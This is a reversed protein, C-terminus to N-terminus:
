LSREVNWKINIAAAAIDTERYPERLCTHEPDRLLLSSTKRMCHSFPGYLDLPENRCEGFFIKFGNKMRKFDNTTAETGVSKMDVKFDCKGSSARTFDM